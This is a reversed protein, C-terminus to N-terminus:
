RGCFHKYFDVVEPSQQFGINLTVWGHPLDHTIMGGLGYHEAM